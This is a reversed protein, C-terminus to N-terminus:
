LLNNSQETRDLKSNTKIRMYTRHEVLQKNQRAIIWKDEYTNGLRYLFGVISTLGLIFM